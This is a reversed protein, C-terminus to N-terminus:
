KTQEVDVINYSTLWDNEPGAVKFRYHGGVRIKKQVSDTNWKLLFPNGSNEVTVSPGNDQDITIEISRRYRGKNLNIETVTGTLTHRGIAEFGFFGCVLILVLVGRVVQNRWGGGRHFIARTFWRPSQKDQRPRAANSKGAGFIGAHKREPRYEDPVYEPTAALKTANEETKATAGELQPVASSAANAMGYLRNQLLHEANELLYQLRQPQEDRVYYVEPNGGTVFSITYKGDAHKMQVNQLEGRNLVRKGSNPTDGLKGPVIRKLVLGDFSAAMVYDEDYLGADDGREGLTSRLADLRSTSARQVLLYNQAPVLGWQRVVDQVQAEVEVAMGIGGGIM